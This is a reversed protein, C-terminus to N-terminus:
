VNPSFLIFGATEVKTAFILNVSEVAAELLIVFIVKEAVNITHTHTHKRKIDDSLNATGRSTTDIFVACESSLANTGSMHTAPNRSQNGWNSLLLDWMEGVAKASFTLWVSWVAM